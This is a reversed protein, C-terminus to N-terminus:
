VPFFFALFHSFKTEEMFRCRAPNVCVCSPLGLESMEDWFGRSNGMEGEGNQAQMMGHTTESDAFM